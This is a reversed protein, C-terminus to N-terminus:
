PKAISLDQFFSTTLGVASRTHLAKAIHCEASCFVGAGVEWLLLPSILSHNWDWGKGSVLQTVKFINSLSETEKATFPPHFSNYM